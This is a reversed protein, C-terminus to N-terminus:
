HNDATKFLRQRAKRLAQEKAVERTDSNSRAIVAGPDLNHVHCYHETGIQYTTVRIKIGEVDMVEETFNETKM